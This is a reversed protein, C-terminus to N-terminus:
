QAEQCWSIVVAFHSGLDRYQIIDIDETSRPLIRKFPRIGSQPSSTAVEMRRAGTQRSFCFILLAGVVSELPAERPSHRALLMIDILRM